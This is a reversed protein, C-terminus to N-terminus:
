DAPGLGPRQLELADARHRYPRAGKLARELRRLEGAEFDGLDDVVQALPVVAVEFTARRRVDPAVARVPIDETVSARATFRQARRRGPRGADALPQRGLFTVAVHHEDPM